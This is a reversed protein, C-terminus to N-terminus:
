PQRPAFVEVTEPLRLVLVNHGVRVASYALWAAVVGRQAWTAWPKETRPWAALALLLVPGSLVAAYREADYLGTAGRTMNVALLLGLVYVLATVWLLRLGATSKEPTASKKIAGLWLGALWAPLVVAFLGAAVTRWSAPLPLFWRLLVFGYDSFSGWLKALTGFGRDPRTGAVREAYYNWAVGGAASAVGHLLLRRWRRRGPYLLAGVGVGALLAMGATRQLPILFAAGTALALWGPRDTRCWHLLAYVYAALLLAFVTESWVFAAPVMMATSLALAWPLVLARKAPLLMRGVLAWLWLNGVLALGHLCRTAWTSEGLALLMPYLPGWYRYLSGDPHLLRGSQAWSRAAAIYYISDSTTHLGNATMLWFLALLVVAAGTLSLRFAKDPSGPGAIEKETQM